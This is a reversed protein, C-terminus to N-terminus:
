TKQKARRNHAADIRNALTRPRVSHFVQKLNPLEKADDFRVKFQRHKETDLITSRTEESM